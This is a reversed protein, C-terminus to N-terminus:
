LLFPALHSYKQLQWGSVDTKPQVCFVIANFILHNTRPDIAIVKGTGEVLRNITSFLLKIRGNIYDAKDPYNTAKLRYDSFSPEDGGIDYVLSHLQNYLQSFEKIRKTKNSFPTDFTAIFCFNVGAVEKKLEAITTKPTYSVNKNDLEIDVSVGYNKLVKVDNRLLANIIRFVTTKGSGNIGVLINVDQNLDRWEM